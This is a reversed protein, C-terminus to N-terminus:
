FIQLWEYQITSNFRELSPNDRPIRDHIFKCLRLNQCAKEFSGAIVAMIQHMINVKGEALYMLRKLFDESFGSTNTKYVRAYAIKTMDEIATFIIRRQGYWWIIVTDIHWLFGFQKVQEIQEKVTHIRVKPM